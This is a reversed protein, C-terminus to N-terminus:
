NQRNWTRGAPPAVRIGGRCRAPRCSPPITKFENRFVQISKLFVVHKKLFSLIMSTINTLKCFIQWYANMFGTYWGKRTPLFMAYERYKRSFDVHSLGFRIALARDNSTEIPKQYVRTQKAPSSIIYEADVVLSCAIGTSARRFKRGAARWTGCSSVMLPARVTELDLVFACQNEGAHPAHMLGSATRYRKRIRWFLICGM